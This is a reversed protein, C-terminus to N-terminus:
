ETSQQLGEMFGSWFVFLYTLSVILSFWGVVHVVLQEYPNLMYLGTWLNFRYFWVGLPGDYNCLNDSNTNTLPRRTRRVPTSTATSPSAMTEKTYKIHTHTHTQTITLNSSHFRAVTRISSKEYPLISELTSPFLLKTM